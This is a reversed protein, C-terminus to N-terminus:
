VVVGAVSGVVIVSVTIILISIVVDIDSKDYGTATYQSSIYHFRINFKFYIKLFIFYVLCGVIAGYIAGALVDSPYHVGLYLRTWCNVTSWALMASAFLKNRVLLSFFVALSMTNAAHASFFSFSRELTGRLIYLSNSIAPDNCPRLRGVLPKVFFDDIGGCLIICVVAAAVILGIQAMTENNKVVIYLLGIYLPIWVFGSTLMPVMSDLFLSHTGNLLTLLQQDLSIIGELNM